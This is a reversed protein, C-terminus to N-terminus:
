KSNSGAIAQKITGVMRDAKVSPIPAYSLVAERAIGRKNMLSQLAAATFCHANDPIIVKPVGFTFLIDVKLFSRVVDSSDNQICRAVSWGTFQEVAILFYKEGNPGTPLPGAFEISFIQLLPWNAAATDDIIISNNSVKSM